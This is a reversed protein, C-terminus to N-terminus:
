NWSLASARVRSASSPLLRLATPLIPLNRMAAAGAGEKPWWPRSVSLVEGTAEDKVITGPPVKVFCAPANAGYQNKIDGNEGNEAAFKRHYRFDLLTNMNQAVIFIVDGGRGGDGGAPGGKPVFKERRFASKGHGGDGAKVIVKTRDIFQM